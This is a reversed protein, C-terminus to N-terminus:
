SQPYVITFLLQKRNNKSRLSDNILSNNKIAKFESKRCIKYTNIARGDATTIQSSDIYGM